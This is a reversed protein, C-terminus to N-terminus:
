GDRRREERVRVRWWTVTLISKANIRDIEREKEKEKKKKEKIKRKM